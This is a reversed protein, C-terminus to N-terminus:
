PTVTLSAVMGHTLHPSFDGNLDPLFCLVTYEGPPLDMTTWATEGAGIPTWGGVMEFPPPGSPEGESMIMALVDDVTAGDALKIVAMEHWQTGKNSIQWMKPGSEIETPMAFAFDVLDVNIDATPPTAGSPEGAELFALGTVNGEDDTAAVVYNGPKVDYVVQGGPVMPGGYMTIMEIAAEVDEAVQQQLQEPTVGDNLRNLDASGGTENVFLVPGAPVTDPVVLDNGNKTVVLEPMQGAAAQEVVAAAPEVDTTAAGTGGCASLVGMVLLVVLGVGTRQLWNGLRKM